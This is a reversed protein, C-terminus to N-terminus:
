ASQLPRPHHLAQLKCQPNCLTLDSSPECCAFQFCSCSLFVIKRVTGLLNRLRTDGRGLQFRVRHPPQNFCRPRAWAQRPPCDTGSAPGVSFTLGLITVSKLLVLLSRSAAGQAGGASGSCCDPSRPSFGSRTYRPPRRAPCSQPLAPHGWGHPLGRKLLRLAEAWRHAAYVPSTSCFRRSFGPSAPAEPAPPSLGAQEGWKMTTGTESSEQSGFLM